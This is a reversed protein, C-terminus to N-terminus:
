EDFTSVGIDDALPDLMERQFPWKELLILRRKMLMWYLFLVSSQQYLASTSYRKKIIGFLFENQKLMVQIKGVLENDIFEEFEDWIILSSKPNHPKINTATYYIGDLRDLVGFEQLPGYNLKRTVITFFDDTTEILAMSKAVTRHIEPKVIRKAKYIADHTLEAHAHQLLTRIQVECPTTSPIDVGQSVLLEKPRLIYHVSQYTFLLPEKQRDENFHKCVDLNWYECKEIIDCIENIESILLVIFRVGVKDEIETYPDSYNKGPRYFAKDILTDTDKIRCRAPVKLFSDLDKGKQEIAQTITNLVFNGWANYLVKELEWKEKFETEKM